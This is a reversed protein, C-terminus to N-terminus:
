TPHSVDSGNSTNILQATPVQALNYGVSHFKM